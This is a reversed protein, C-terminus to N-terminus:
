ILPFPGLLQEIWVGPSTGTNLYRYTGAAVIVKRIYNRTESYPISQVFLLTDLDGFQRKWKRLNGGGGNYAALVDVYDNTWPREILWELYLNGFRINDEPNMLDWTDVRYRKALDSATSPMLQMLGVAGAHSEITRHFASERRIIGLVLEEPQGYERSISSVPLDGDVPFLWPTLHVAVSSPWKYYWSGAFQICKYFEKQQFLRSCLAEVISYGLPDVRREWLRWAQDVAGAGILIRYVNEVAAEESNLIPNEVKLGPSNGVKNILPWSGPEELLTYFDPYGSELRNTLLNETLFAPREILNQQVASDLLFLGQILSASLSTELLVSVLVELKQWSRGRVLLSYYEDLLDDFYDTEGWSVAHEKLYTSVKEPNRRVLLRLQYWDARKKEAGTNALLGANAYFAEAKKWQGSGEYVAAALFAASFTGSELFAWDKMLSIWKEQRGSRGIIERLEMLFSSPLSSLSGLESIWLERFLTEGEGSEGQENLTRAMIIKKGIADDKFPSDWSHLVEDILTLDEKLLFSLYEWRDLTSEEAKLPLSWPSTSANSNFPYKNRDLNGIWLAHFFSDELYRDQIGDQLRGYCYSAVKEWENQDSWMHLLEERAMLFVSSEDEPLHLLLFEVGEAEGLEKLLLAGGLLESSSYNEFFLSQDKKNLKLLLRIDSSSSKGNMFLSDMVSLAEGLQYASFAFSVTCGLLLTFPIIVSFILRKRSLRNPVFVM